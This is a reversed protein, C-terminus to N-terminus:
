RARSRTSTGTRPAGRRVAGLPVPGGSEEPPESTETNGAGCASMLGLLMILALGLALLKKWNNMKEEEESSLKKHM